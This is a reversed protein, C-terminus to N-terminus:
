APFIKKADTADPDFGPDIKGVDGWQLLSKSGNRYQYEYGLLIRPKDPLTLVFNAWARGVDLHLDRDLSYMSPDFGPFYGGADSYYERYQEFGVQVYG